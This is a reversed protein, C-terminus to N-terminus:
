NNSPGRPKRGERCARAPHQRPRRELGRRVAGEQGGQPDGKLHM